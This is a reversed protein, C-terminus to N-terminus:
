SMRTVGNEPVKGPRSILALMMSLRRRFSERSPGSHTVAPGFPATRAYAPDTLLPNFGRLYRPTHDKNAPEGPHCFRHGAAGQALFRRYQSNTVETRDIAFGRLRVPKAPREDAVRWAPEARALLVEWPHLPAEGPPLRPLDPHGEATGRTFSSPPVIVMAAASPGPHLEAGVVPPRSCGSALVLAVWYAAPVRRM